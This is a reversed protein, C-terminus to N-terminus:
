SEDDEYKWADRAPLPTGDEFEDLTTAAKALFWERVDVPVTREILVTVIHLADSRFVEGVIDDRPDILELSIGDRLIDGAVQLSWGNM